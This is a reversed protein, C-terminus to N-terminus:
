DIEEVGSLTYHVADASTTEAVITDGEELLMTQGDTLVDAAENQNLEFRKWFRNEGSRNVYILITQAASDENILTFEKVYTAVNATATFITALADPIFGDGLAKPTFPM